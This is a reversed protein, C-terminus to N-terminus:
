SVCTPYTIVPLFPSCLIFPVVELSFIDWPAGLYSAFDGPWIGQLM